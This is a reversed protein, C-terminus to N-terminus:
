QRRLMGSACEFCSLVSWNAGVCASLLYLWLLIACAYPRLACSGGPTAAHCLTVVESHQQGRVSTDPM